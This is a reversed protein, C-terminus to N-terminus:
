ALGEVSDQLVQFVGQATLATDLSLAGDSAAAISGLAAMAHAAKNMALATTAM